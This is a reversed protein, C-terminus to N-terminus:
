SRGSVQPLIAHHTGSRGRLVCVWPSRERMTANAVSMTPTRARPRGYAREAEANRGFVDPGKLRVQGTQGDFEPRKTPGDARRRGHRAHPGSVRDGASSCRRDSRRCHQATIRDM